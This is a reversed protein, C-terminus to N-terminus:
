SINDKLFAEHVVTGDQRTVIVREHANPKGNRALDRACRIAEERAVSDDAFHHGDQDAPPRFVDFYYKPM